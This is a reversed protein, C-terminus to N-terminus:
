KRQIYWHDLMLSQYGLRLQVYQNKWIPVVGYRLRIIVSRTKGESGTWKVPLHQNISYRGRSNIM